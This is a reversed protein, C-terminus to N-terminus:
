YMCCTECYTKMKHLQTGFPFPENGIWYPVEVSITKSAASTSMSSPFFQVHVVTCGQQMLSLNPDMTLMNITLSNVFALWDALSSTVPNRTIQIDKAHRILGRLLYTKATVSFVYFGADVVGRTVVVFVLPAQEQAKVIMKLFLEVLVMPPHSYNSHLVYWQFPSSPNRAPFNSYDCLIPSLWVSRNTLMQTIFLAGYCCSSENHVLWPRFNVPKFNLVIPCMTDATAATLRQRQWALCSTALSSEMLDFKYVGIKYTGETSGRELTGMSFVNPDLGEDLKIEVYFPGNLFHNLILLFDPFNWKQM